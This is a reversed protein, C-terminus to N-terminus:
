VQKTTPLTLHTYSVAKLNIRYNCVGDIDINTCNKTHKHYVEDYKKLYTLMEETTESVLVYSSGNKMTRIPPKFSIYLQINCSRSKTCRLQFAKKSYKTRRMEVFKEDDNEKVYAIHYLKTSGNTIGVLLFRM